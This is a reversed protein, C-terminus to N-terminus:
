GDPGHWVIEICAEVSRSVSLQYTIHRREFGELGPGSRAAQDRSIIREPKKLVHRKVGIQAM